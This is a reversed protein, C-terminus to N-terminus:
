TRKENFSINFDLQQHNQFNLVISKNKSRMGYSSSLYGDLIKVHNAGSVSLLIGKKTLKLHNEDVECRVDSALHFIAKAQVNQKGVIEDYLSLKKEKLLISRKHIINHEDLYGIHQGVFFNNKFELCEANTREKMYFLNQEDFKNQESKGVQVTNHMETSRFLNRLKYNGTYIYSGPDVIFDEGGINLEFSLQDNHSHVGDGRFSLEGCRVCCYVEENRLIYYGGDKYSASILQTPAIKTKNISKQYTWLKDEEYKKGYYRFDDRNFMEGAIGLLHSFDNKIWAGYNSFILLRGDDADGIIPTLGNPKTINMLFECMKELRKMYKDTFYIDNKNCIITTLLFLETVLRHYSTSAEYNTGDENNQMFMEKELEQLAYQLWKEPVNNKSLDKVNFSKFYVGLWILGVINSLYHNGTYKGKNELNKMIYKGHLYLSKNFKRRFNQDLVVSNQFFPYSVIWNVARIAVDMTCTWNVSMEVPNEEIWNEIEEKFEYVYKNKDTLWYAKGLTFLHQFRSLEWPIKVDADNSLDVIKISKYFQNEWVFNTKFDKNWPLKEGLWTEGSGLLDFIHSCVKDADKLIKEEVNLNKMADLIYEKDEFNFLMRSEIKFNNFYEDKLDIPKFKVIQERTKQYSFDYLKTVIKESAQRMSLKRLNNWKKQLEGM